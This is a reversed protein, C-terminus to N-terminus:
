SRHAGRRRAARLLLGAASLLLLLAGAAAIKRTGPGGTEPLVYGSAQNIVVLEGAQVGDSNNMSYIVHFGPPAEVEEVSYYYRAGNESTKPLDRWTYTWNEKGKLDIEGYTKSSILEFFPAKADPFTIESYAQSNDLKEPRITIYLDDSINDLTYRCIGGDGPAVLSESADGVKIYIKDNNWVGGVQITLSSGEAVEVIRTTPQGSGWSQENGKSHVTVTRANSRTEKQVLRIKVSEVPANIKKGDEDYWLKTVTLTTPENPVYIQGSGTLFRVSESAVGGLKGADIMEQKLQELTQGPKLKVWVFHYAASPLSAYGDPAKTETLRYLTNDQFNFNEFQQEDTRSLVLKGDDGTVLKDTQLMWNGDIYGKLTFKAGPLGTGYNTSDVKYLTLDRKSASASSSTDQFEIENETGEEDGHLYVKNKLTPAQASGADIRYQYVLVCPLMDPVQVTLVHETEDYTFAYLSTNIEEGRHDPATPDYAYLAVSEALFEAGAAQGIELHDWLTLFDVGQVLDEGAPNILVSYEVIDTYVTSGDLNKAPDGNEDLQPLQAGTKAIEPVDREVTVDVGAQADGWVARNRYIHSELGPDDTWRPDEAISVDYYIALTNHNGDGNYGNDITFTIPTRGDPETEKKECRFHQPLKYEVYGEPTSYGIWDSEWGERVFKACPTGTLAAGAPLRDTVTIDGKTTEDTRLLLRYHLVGGAGSASYDMSIGDTWPGNQSNSVQKELKQPPKPPTYNTEANAEHDPPIAATNRVTYATEPELGTYDVTSSYQLQITRGKVKEVANATFEVRFGTYKEAEGVHTVTYDTGRALAQGDVNVTLADLQTDTFFHSGPITEGNATLDYLTDTFAINGLDNEGFAAPVTITATWQYIGTTETSTNKNHWVSKGVNYDPMSPYTTTSTEYREGDKEFEATNTVTVQQGPTLGAVPTEYTITYSDSAGEPFTYPLKVQQSSGDSGTLTVTEPLTATVGDPATITDTLKWGGIDRKDPNLTITWRIVGTAQDYSGTKSLMQHSIDINVSDSGSSGGETTVSVTNSVNSAGLKDSSEGPAATYTIKYSEGPSLAPLNAITFSDKQGNERTFTYQSSDVETEVGNVVKVVKFSEEDYRADTNTWGFSDKVTIAGGTGKTTSVTLTYHLKKDTEDYSGTKDVRVDTPAPNPKVIITEGEGGFSIENDGGDDKAWVTGKFQIQGTFSREDAFADSFTIEIYGEPSITYSGVTVGNDSVLGSEAQALTIGEPLDYHITKNAAGVVGEPLSYSIQVRVNTGDFFETGSVWQGNQLTEVTVSTINPGFDHSGRPDGADAPAGDALLLVANAPAFGPKDVTAWSAAGEPPTEPAAPEAWSLRLEGDARAAAEELSAGRGFRLTLSGPADPDGREALVIETRLVTEYGAPEGGLTPERGLTPEGDTGPEPVASPAFAAAFARTWIPVAHSSLSLATGGALRPVGSGNAAAFVASGDDAATSEAPTEEGPEAPPESEAADGASAPADPAQTPAATDAPLEQARPAPSDDPQEEGSESPGPEPTPEPLPTDEATEEPPTEEPADETEPPQMEPAETEEPMETEAPPEETPLPSAGPLPIREETVEARYRDTGNGWPLSFRVSQGQALAFWYRAEGSQTYERHLEVSGGDQAPVAATGGGDFAIRSEDLGANDGDALLVFVTEARGGDAEAFIETEAAQGIPYAGEPLAGAARATVAFSGGTLTVAPLILLYATVFVVLASLATVLRTWWRRWRRARLFGLAQTLIRKQDM